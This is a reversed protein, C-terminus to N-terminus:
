DAKLFNGIIGASQTGRLGLKRGARFKRFVSIAGYIAMFFCVYGFFGYYHIRDMFRFTDSYPSGALKRRLSVKKNASVLSSDLLYNLVDKLAYPDNKLQNGSIDTDYVFRNDRTLVLTDGPKVFQYRIKWDKSKTIVPNSLDVFTFLVDNTDFLHPVEERMEHIIKIGKANKKKLVDVIKEKEQRKAKMQDFFYNKKTHIYEHAAISLNFFGENMKLADLSDIFTVVVKDAKLKADETNFYTRFNTPTLEGYLPFQNRKIFDEVKYNNRIDEPALSQFVSTQLMNDKVVLVTPKTTLTTALLLEESFLKEPEKDNYNIFEVLGKEQNAINKELRKSSSIFLRVNFPSATITQLMYPLIAKDEESTTKPDYYFIVSVINELPYYSNLPAFPLSTKYDMIEELATPTTTDYQANEHLRIAYNKLAELTYEGTYDFRVVGAKKPLFMVFKPFRANGDALDSFGLKSCINPNSMCSVHGTSVRSLIQNSLKDWMMKYNYCDYCNHSFIDKKDNAEASQWQRTTSPFFTVFMSSESEGALLALIDNAQLERSSSPMDLLGSAHEAAASKMYKILNEKTRVLSLPFAGVHKLRGLSAQEGDGKKEPVYLRLSPYSNVAERECLDGSEVCNVQLMQIGIKDQEPYFEKYTAEWTPAFSKCHSCYPSFFEVFSIRESTVADFNELNLPAPLEVTEVKAGTELEGDKAVGSKGDGASNRLKLKEISQIEADSSKVPRSSLSITATTAGSYLLGSTSISAVAFSAMYLAVALQYKM